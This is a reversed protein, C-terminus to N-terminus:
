SLRNNWHGSLLIQLILEKTLQERTTPDFRDPSSLIKELVMELLEPNPQESGCSDLYTHLNLVQCFTTFLEYNYQAKAESEQPSTGGDLSTTYLLALFGSESSAWVCNGVKQHKQLLTHSAQAGLRTILLSADSLEETELFQQFFDPTLQSQLVTYIRVGPMRTSRDCVMIRNKHFVYGVAHSSLGKLIFFPRGSTIREAIETPSSNIHPYMHEMVEQISALEIQSFAYPYPTEINERSTLFRRVNEYFVPSTSELFGAELNFLFNGKRTHQVVEGSLEWSLAVSKMSSYIRALTQNAGYALLSAKIKPDNIGEALELPTIGGGDFQNPDAGNQLLCEVIVHARNYIAATLATPTKCFHDINAGERILRIAIDCTHHKGVQVLPHKQCGVAGNPNAGNQFLLEVARMDQNKVAHDLPVRRNQGILNPDAGNQLLLKMLSYNAYETAYILPTNSSRGATNVDIGLNASMILTALKSDNEELAYNFQGQFFPLDGSRLANAYDLGLKGLTERAAQEEPLPPPCFSSSNSLPCIQTLGNELTTPSFASSVHMLASTPQTCAEATAVASIGLMTIAIRSLKSVCALLATTFVRDETEDDGCVDGFIVLQTIKLDVPNSHEVPVRFIATAPDGQNKEYARLVRSLRDLQRESMQFYQGGKLRIIYGVGEAQQVCWKGNMESWELTFNRPFVIENKFDSTM